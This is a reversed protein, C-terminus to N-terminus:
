QYESIKETCFRRVHGTKGCNYCIPQSNCISAKHGEAGCKYCVITPPGLSQCNKSTHGRTNCFTCIKTRCALKYHGRAGCKECHLEPSHCDMITHGSKKCFECKKGVTIWGNKDPFSKKNRPRTTIRKKKTVVVLAEQDSDSDSSSLLDNWDKNADKYDTLITSTM